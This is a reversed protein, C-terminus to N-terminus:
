LVWWEGDLRTLLASGSAIAARVEPDRSHVIPRRVIGLTAFRRQLALELGPELRGALAPAGREAADRVLSELVADAGNERTAVQLVRSARDTALEYVYWGAVKDGVRVLRSVVPRGASRVLALQAELRAESYDPRLRVGRTVEPLHAVLEAAGAEESTVEAPARERRWRGAAQAPLAGVPVLDRRLRRGRMAQSVIRRLWRGPRLVLMWDCARSHDPHGGLLRFLRVVVEVGSDSWTLEQPGSLLGRVLAIGAGSSRSEPEVVLHSCCVARAARGDISFSRPQSAIFGVVRGEGDTAVLSPLEEDAWPGDFLTARLFRQTDGGPLPRRLLHREMLSAIAPLDAREAPRITPM